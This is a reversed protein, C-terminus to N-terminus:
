SNRVHEYANRVKTPSVHLAHALAQEIRPQMPTEAREILSMTSRSVGIRQALAAQELGANIRLEQLTGPVPSDAMLSSLPVRLLKAVRVLKTIGPQSRGTEWAQITGISVGLKRALTARSIGVPGDPRGQVNERAARLAAADCTILSRPM